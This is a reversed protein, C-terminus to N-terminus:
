RKIMVAHGNLNHVVSRDPRARQEDVFRTVGACSEFGYDDFVAIGGAVLRPWVWEFADRTSDYVDLDFHCLRFTRQEIREGTDEPFIGVLTQVDELALGELLRHVHEVDTDAHEGGHYSPDLAGTKVVGAFTDCLWVPAAVGLMRARRALLAGTGGRWVGLELLDGAPLQAVEAVLQWLEYLRYRDVLTSGAIAQEVALFDEDGLWPAYTAQPRSRAYWHEGHRVPADDDRDGPGPM